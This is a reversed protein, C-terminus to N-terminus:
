KGALKESIKKGAQAPYFYIGGNVRYLSSEKSADDMMFTVYNIQFGDSRKVAPDFEIHVYIGNNKSDDVMENWDDEAYVEDVQYNGFDAAAVDDMILEILDGDEIKASSETGNLWVEKSSLTADKYQSGAAKGCGTFLISVALLVPVIARFSKMIEGKM